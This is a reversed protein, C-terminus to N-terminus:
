HLGAVDRIQWAGFAFNKLAALGANKENPGEGLHDFRATSGARRATPQAM